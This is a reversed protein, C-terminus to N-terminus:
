YRKVKFQGRDYKKEINLKNKTTMKHTRNDGKSPTTPTPFTKKKNMKYDINNKMM